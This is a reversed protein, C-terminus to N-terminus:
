LIGGGRGEGGRGEGGRGEGGGGGEGKGGYIIGDSEVGGVPLSDSSDLRLRTQITVPTGLRVLTCRM